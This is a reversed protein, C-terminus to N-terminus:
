PKATPYSATTLIQANEVRPLVSCTMLTAIHAWQSPGGGPACPLLSSLEPYCLEELNLVIPKKVAVRM